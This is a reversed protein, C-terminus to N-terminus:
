MEENTRNWGLNELKTCYKNFSTTALRSSEKERADNIDNLEKEKDKKNLLFLAMENNYEKRLTHWTNEISIDLIWKNYWRAQLFVHMANTYQSKDGGAVHQYVEKPYDSVPSTIKGWTMHLGVHRTYNTYRQKFVSADSYSILIDKNDHSVVQLHSERFDVGHVKDVRCPLTIHYKKTERPGNTLLKVEHVYHHEKTNLM